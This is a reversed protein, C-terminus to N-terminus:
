TYSSSVCNTSVQPGVLEAYLATALPRDRPETAWCCEILRTIAAGADGLARLPAVDPRDGRGMRFALATRTTPVLGRPRPGDAWPYWGTVAEYLTLAFAWIDSAFINKHHDDMLEPAHYLITGFRENDRYYKALDTGANSVFGVGYDTIVVEGGPTRFMVNSPKIDAHVIHAAALAALGGIAEKAVQLADAPNLQGHAMYAEELTGGTLEEMLILHAPLSPLGPDIRSLDPETGVGYVMVLHKYGRLDHPAACRRSRLGCSSSLRAGAIALTCAKDILARAAIMNKSELDFAERTEEVLEPSPALIIKLAVRRGDWSGRLVKGFAGAAAGALVAPSLPGADLALDRLRIGFNFAPPENEGEAMAGVLFVCVPRM